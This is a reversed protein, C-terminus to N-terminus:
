LRLKKITQDKGELLEIKEKIDKNLQHQELIYLTLEEIKEVLLKNMGGLEVGTSEVEKASPINILHGKEEIHKKVEELSPLQYDKEFVFDPWGETDVKVEQTHINGNVALKYGKTDATGIGVNGDYYIGNTGTSWVSTGTSQAAAMSPETLEEISPMEPDTTEYISPNWFYQAGGAIWEGYLYFRSGLLDATNGFKFDDFLSVNMKEGTEADFVGGQTQTIGDQYVFDSGYIYGVMLYWKDIEPLYDSFFIPNSLRVGDSRLAALGGYTSNTASFGFHTKGVSNGSLLGKKKVWVTFRYTKTNDMDLYDSSWGGSLNAGTAPGMAKWLLADGGYPDTEEGAIRQNHSDNGFQKFVGTDGTGEEWTSSDLRNQAFSNQSFGLVICFIFLTKLFKTNLYIIKM